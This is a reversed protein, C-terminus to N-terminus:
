VAYNDGAEEPSAALHQQSPFLGAQRKERLRFSEGRINLVHSHHLLRDLVASAIVTDGLPEGWEGFGKNSTLIISGREYRASVLTFFATAAERDYPWIGIEDVVLVKPSLYVRMRRDLNHEIRAKRLDEMLDYARVFYAGQGNEIARLALAVALHTKGVGPPGLLLINAAEAVFALGALERVMREDISPQFGFDFQELTRQFPLHALKTRTSLYRERRASVEVGLLDALMEPYTLQKSAATDLTNDLVEVKQKLGLSELYQRTQELAIM